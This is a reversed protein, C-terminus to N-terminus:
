TYSSTYLLCFMAMRLFLEKIRRMSKEIYVWPPILKREWYRGCESFVLRRKSWVKVPDRACLSMDWPIFMHNQVRSM